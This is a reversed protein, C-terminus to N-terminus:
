RPDRKTRDGGEPSRAVRACCLAPADRMVRGVAVLMGRIFQEVTDETISLTWHDRTVANPSHASSRCCRVSWAPSARPFRRRRQPRPHEILFGEAAGRRTTRTK